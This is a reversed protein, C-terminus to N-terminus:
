KWDNPASEMTLTLAAQNLTRSRPLKAPMKPIMIWSPRSNGNATPACSSAWRGHGDTKRTGAPISPSNDISFRNKTSSEGALAPRPSYSVPSSVASSAARGAVSPNTRRFTNAVGTAHTIAPADNQVPM